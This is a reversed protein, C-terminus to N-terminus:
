CGWYRPTVEEAALSCYGEATRLLSADLVFLACVACSSKLVGAWDTFPLRWDLTLSCVGGRYIMEWRWYCRANSTIVFVDISVSRLCPLCLLSKCGKYSFAGLVTAKDEIFAFYYSRVESEWNLMILLLFFLDTLCCRRYTNSGRDSCFTSSKLFVSELKMGTEGM